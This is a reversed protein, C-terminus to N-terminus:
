MVAHRPAVVRVIVDAFMAPIMAQDMKIVRKM